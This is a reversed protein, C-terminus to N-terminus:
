HTPREEEDILEAFVMELTVSIKSQEALTLQSDAAMRFLQEGPDAGSRAMLEYRWLGGEQGKEAFSVIDDLSKLGVEIKDRDGRILVSHANFYKNGKKLEELKGDALVRSRNILIIRECMAEVESLIHTSLIITKERGLKKMLERFNRIQIPDLGSTPEDLILIEPDHIMAQALGVRQKYGKSLEGVQMKMVGGVGSVEIIRSIAESKDRGRIGRVSAAYDLFEDIRMDAYLPANEPLYGVHKRAEMSEEFVEHGAIKAEGLDAPLYGTLIRMTTTKGAGNPGVFGVVEGKAISFSIDDVATVIGFSKSIRDVEIM